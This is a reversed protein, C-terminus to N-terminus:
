NKLKGKRPSINSKEKRVVKSDTSKKIVFPLHTSTLHSLPYFYKHCLVSPRSETGVWLPLSAVCGGWSDMSDWVNVTTHAHRFMGWHLLLM